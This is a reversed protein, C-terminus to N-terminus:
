RQANVSALEAISQKYEEVLAFPSVIVERIDESDQLSYQSTMRYTSHGLQKSLLQGYGEGRRKRAFYTTFHRRLDHPGQLQKELGADIIIEKVVRHLGAPTLRPLRQSPFLPGTQRPHAQLWRYLYRGTAADFAVVRSHVPRNRVKKAQRVRISGSGDPLITLDECDLGAAETRRLGVGLFVALIASNRAPFRAAAAADMLRALMPLAVAVRMPASGQATPVWSRYDRGDTYGHEVAWRLIGRLLLHIIKRSNFALGKETLWEAFDRMDRQRLEWNLKPGHEALWVRFHKIKEAYHKATVPAVRGRQDELWFDILADLNEIEWIHEGPDLNIGSRTM